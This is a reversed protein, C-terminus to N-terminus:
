TFFPQMAQRVTQQLIPRDDMKLGTTAIPPLVKVLIEREWVGWNPFLHHKPLIQAANKIVVPVIPAGTNIAFVFPGSKFEGLREEHQRTGEPALAFREGNKMREQAAKYVEFVRERRARDIPLTGLRRLAFGFVPIKFLEIKAGFRMSPLAAALAFIDFLSAHNFVFLCGERPVNELGEVRVKVGFMACSDHGWARMVADDWQRRNFILNQLVCFTSYVILVFPYLASMLIARPYSLWKLIM